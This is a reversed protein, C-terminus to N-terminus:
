ILKKVTLGFFKLKMWHAFMPDAFSLQDGRYTLLDAALLLRRNKTTSAPSGLRYKEMVSVSSLQQEGMAVAKLLNLQTPSLGGALRSYARDHLAFYLQLAARLEKKGSTQEAATQHWLHFALEQAPRAEAECLSLLQLLTQKRVSKGTARFQERFYALWTEAPLPQPQVLQAFQYFPQAPREFLQVFAPGGSGSLLYSVRKHNQWIARVRKAFAAGKDLNRLLHFDDIWIVLRCGLSEAIREPLDLIEDPNHETQWSDFLLKEADGPETLPTVKQLFTQALQLRTESSKSAAQLVHTAFHNLFDVTHQARFLDTIALIRVSEQQPGSGSNQQAQKSIAALVAQALWSKGRGPPAAIVANSGALLTSTLFTCVEDRGTFFRSRYPIDFAFPTNKPFM